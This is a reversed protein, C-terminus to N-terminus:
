VRRWRRSSDRRPVVTNPPLGGGASDGSTRDDIEGTALWRGREAEFAAQQRAKAARAAPEISRLFTEHDRLRFVTTETTLRYEGRPFRERIEMLEHHSVPFFRLQDFFRLLWPKGPPFDATEHLSNWM